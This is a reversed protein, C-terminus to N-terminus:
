GPVRCRSLEEVLIEGPGHGGVQPVWLSGLSPLPVGCSGMGVGSPGPAAPSPHAVTLCWLLPFPSM